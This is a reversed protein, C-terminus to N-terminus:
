VLPDAPERAGHILRSFRIRDPFYHNSHKNSTLSNIHLM